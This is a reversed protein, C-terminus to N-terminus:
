DPRPAAAAAPRGSDLVEREWSGARPAYLKCYEEAIEDPDFATGPGV